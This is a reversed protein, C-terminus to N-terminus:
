SAPAMRVASFTMASFALMSSHAYLGKLPLYALHGERFQFCVAWMALRREGHLLFKVPSLGLARAAPTSKKNLKVFVFDLRRVGPIAVFLAVSGFCVTRGQKRFAWDIRM